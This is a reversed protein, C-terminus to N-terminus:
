KVLYFLQEGYKDVGYKAILDKAKQSSMWNIFANAGDVNTKPWKGSSVAIMSYSNKLQESESLLVSLQGKQAHALYTAKDTLIYAQQEAAVTISAGMGQGTSVYFAKGTPDINATTWIKKEAANTGSNDGRSVFKAGVTNAIKTFAESASAVGKIGAPDSAPGVIIFYNYMFTIRKVGYGESVLKDEDAPSHVLLMDADGTRAKQIAAGSGASTIELKYGTDKEFEPQLYPLLGSDNVSTTTSLRITPNKKACASFSFITLLAMLFVFCKKM